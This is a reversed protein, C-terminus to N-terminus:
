LIGFLDPSHIVVANQHTKGSGRGVGEGKKCTEFRLELLELSVQIASGIFQGLFPAGIPGQAVELGVQQRGVALRSVKERAASVNDFRVVAYQGCTGAAGIGESGSSCKQAVRFERGLLNRQLRESNGAVNANIGVASDYDFFHSFLYLLRYGPAPLIRAASVFLLKGM